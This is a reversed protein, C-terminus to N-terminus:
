RGHVMSRRNRNRRVTVADPGYCGLPSAHRQGPVLDLGARHGKRAFPGVGGVFRALGLREPDGEEFDEADGVLADGGELVRDLLVAASLPEDVQEPGAHQQHLLLRAALAEVAGKGLRQVIEGADLFAVQRAVDDDAVEDGEAQVVQCGPGRVFERELVQVPVHAVEAEDGAVFRLFDLRLVRDVDLGGLAHAPQVIRELFAAVAPVVEFHQQHSQQEAQECVVGADELGRLGQAGPDLLAGALVTGVETGQQGPQELHEVGRFGRATVVEVLLKSGKGVDVAPQELFVDGDGVEVRGHALRQEVGARQVPARDRGGDEAGQELRDHVVLRSAVEARV